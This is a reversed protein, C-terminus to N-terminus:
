KKVVKKIVKKVVKKVVKKDNNNQTNNNDQKNFKDLMMRTLPSAYIYILDLTMDNNNIFKNMDFINSGDRLILIELVKDKMLNFKDDEDKYITYKQINKIDYHDIANNLCFDIFIDETIYYNYKIFIDLTQTLRNFYKIGKCYKNFLMFDKNTVNYKKELMYEILVNNGSQIADKMNDENLVIKDLYESLYKKFIDSNYECQLLKNIILQLEEKKIDEPIFYKIYRIIKDMNEGCFLCIDDINSTSFKPYDKYFSIFYEFLSNEFMNSKLILDEYYYLKFGDINIKECMLKELKERLKVNNNNKNSYADYLVKSIYTIYDEEVFKESNIFQINVYEMLQIFKNTKYNQVKDFGFIYYKYKYNTEDDRNITLKSMLLDIFNTNLKDKPFLLKSYIDKNIFLNYFSLDEININDINKVFDEYYKNTNKIEYFIIYKMFKINKVFDIRDCLLEFTEKGRYDRMNDDNEMSDIIIDIDEDQINYKEELSLILNKIVEEGKTIWDLICQNKGFQRMNTKTLFTLVKKFDKYNLKNKLLILNNNIHDKNEKCYAYDQFKVDSVTFSM